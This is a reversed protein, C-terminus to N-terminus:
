KRNRRRRRWGGEIGTSNGSDTFIEPNIRKAHGTCLQGLLRSDTLIM